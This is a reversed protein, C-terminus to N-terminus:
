LYISNWPTSFAVPRFTLHVMLAVHLSFAILRRGFSYGDQVHSIDQRNVSVYLIFFGAPAARRGSVHYPPNYLSFLLGNNYIMSLTSLHPRFYTHQLNDKYEHIRFHQPFADPNKPSYIRHQGSRVISIYLLNFLCYCLYM